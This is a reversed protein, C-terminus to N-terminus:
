PLPGVPPLDICYVTNDREWKVIWEEYWVYGKCQKNIVGAPMRMCMCFAEQRCLQREVEVSAKGNEGPGIKPPNFYFANTYVKYFSAVVGTDRMICGDNGSNRDCIGTPCSSWQFNGPTCNDQEAAEPDIVLCSKPNVVDIIVVDDGFPPTQAHLTLGCGSAVTVALVYQFIKRCFM